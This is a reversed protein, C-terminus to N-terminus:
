SFSAGAVPSEKKERQFSSAHALGYAILRALLRVSLCRHRRNGTVTV